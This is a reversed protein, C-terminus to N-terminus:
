EVDELDSVLEWGKPTNKYFKRTISAYDCHVFTDYLCIRTYETLSVINEILVDKNNAFDHCTWDTAGKGKYTHQSNGERGKSKEWAIPRYGSKQSPWIPIGMNERVRNMPIIHFLLIKDAVDEPIPQGSINFDSVKFYNM